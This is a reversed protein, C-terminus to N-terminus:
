HGQTVKLSKALCHIVIILFDPHAATRRFCSYKLQRTFEICSVEKDRLSAPLNNWIRPGAAAFCRNGLGSQVRSISMVRCQFGRVLFSTCLSARFHLM